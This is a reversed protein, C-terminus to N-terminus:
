EQKKQPSSADESPNPISSPPDSAPYSDALTKDMAQEKKSERRNGRKGEGARFSGTPEADTIPDVSQKQVRENM